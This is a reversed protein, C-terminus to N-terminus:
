RAATYMTFQTNVSVSPSFSALTTAASFASFFWCRFSRFALFLRLYSHIIYYQHQYLFTTRQVNHVPVPYVLDQVQVVPYGPLMYYYDDTMHTQCGCVM